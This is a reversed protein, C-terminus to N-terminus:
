HETFILIMLDVSPSRDITSGGVRMTVEKKSQEIRRVGHGFFVCGLRTASGRNSSSILRRRQTRTDSMGKTAEESGPDIHGVRILLQQNRCFKWFRGAGGSNWWELREWM